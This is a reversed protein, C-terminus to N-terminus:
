KIQGLLLRSASSGQAELAAIGGTAFVAVARLLEGLQKSSSQDFKCYAGHTIGTIEKFAAETISDSGEHFAFIPINADALRRALPM